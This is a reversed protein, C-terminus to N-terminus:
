KSCTYIYLVLFLLKKNLELEEYFVKRLHYKETPCIQRKGCTALFCTAKLEWMLGINSCESACRETLDIVKM